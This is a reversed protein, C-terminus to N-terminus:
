NQGFDLSNTPSSIQYELNLKRKQNPFVPSIGENRQPTAAMAVSVQYCNYGETDTTQSINM